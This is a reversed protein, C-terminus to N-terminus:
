SVASSAAQQSPAQAVAPSSFYQLMAFLMPPVGCQPSHQMSGFFYLKYWKKSFFKVLDALAEGHSPKPYVFYSEVTVCPNPGTFIVSSKYSLGASTTSVASSAAQQSPAQAVAPSSFYQLMAFLMPPVGCQPSHQM